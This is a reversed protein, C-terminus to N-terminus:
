GEKILQSKSRKDIENYAGQQRIKAGCFEFQQSKNAVTNVADAVSKQAAEIDQQSLISQKYSPREERKLM